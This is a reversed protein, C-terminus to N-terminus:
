PELGLRRMLAAFRPDSRLPDLFSYSGLVHIWADHGEVAREMWAFAEDLEGLGLHVWAFSTPLVFREASLLRLRELATRAEAAHGGLGLALGLWGVMVASGGSLDVARQFAAASEGYQHEVLYAMGLAMHALYHEPELEVFAHAKRVAEDAHRGLVLGFLLWIRVEVSLPDTELAHELEEIAEDARGLVILVSAYRLRIHPLHPSLDRAQKLRRLSEPWNYTYPDEYRYKEPLYAM